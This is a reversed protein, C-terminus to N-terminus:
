LEVWKFALAGNPAWAGQPIAGVHLNAKVFAQHKDEAEIIFKLPGAIFEWNKLRSRDEQHPFRFVNNM